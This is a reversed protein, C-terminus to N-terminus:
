YFFRLERLGNGKLFHLFVTLSLRVISCDLPFFSTYVPKTYSEALHMSVCLCAQSSTFSKQLVLVVSHVLSMEKVPFLTAFAPFYERLEFHVDALEQIAFKMTTAFVCAYFTFRDRICM